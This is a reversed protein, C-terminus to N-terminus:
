HLTLFFSTRSPSVNGGAPPNKLPHHLKNKTNRFDYRNLRVQGPVFSYLLHPWRFIRVMAPILLHYPLICSRPYPILFFYICACRMFASHLPFVLFLACLRPHTASSIRLCSSMAPIFFFDFPNLLIGFHRPSYLSVVYSVSVSWEFGPFFTLDGGRLGVKWGVKESM